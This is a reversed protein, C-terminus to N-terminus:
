IPLLRGCSTKELQIWSSDETHDKPKENTRTWTRRKQQMEQFLTVSHM